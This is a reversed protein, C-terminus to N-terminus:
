RRKERVLESITTLIKQKKELSGPFKGLSLQAYGIPGICNMTEGPVTGLTPPLHRSYDGTARELARKRLRSKKGGTESLNLSPRSLVQATTLTPASFLETLNTKQPLQEMVITEPKKERKAKVKTERTKKKAAETNPAGALRPPAVLSVGDVTLQMKSAQVAKRRLLNKALNGRGASQIQSLRHSGLM